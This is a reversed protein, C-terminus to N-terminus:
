IKKLIYYLHVYRYQYVRQAYRAQWAEQTFGCAAEYLAMWDELSAKAALERLYRTEKEMSVIEWGDVMIAAEEDTFLSHLVLADEGEEGWYEGQEKEEGFISHPWCDTSIFGLLCLGGPKLIRRMEDVALVTDGHSLHCMAYQEYVYDFSGDPFPMCRMDGKQLHLDIGQVQCFQSAKALQEDSVDIGWTEFGHQHFLALPPLLGGAGCDLIKGPVPLGARSRISQIMSLFGYVPIANIRLIIDTM